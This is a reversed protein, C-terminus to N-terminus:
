DAGYLDFTSGEAVDPLVGDKGAAVVTFKANFDAVYREACFRM